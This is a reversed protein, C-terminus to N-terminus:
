AGRQEGGGRPGKGQEGTGASFYQAATTAWCRLGTGVLRRRRLSLLLTGGRRALPPGRLERALVADGAHELPFPDEGCPPPPSAPASPSTPSSTSSSLLLACDSTTLGDSGSPPRSLIGSSPPHITPLLPHHCEPQRCISTHDTHKKNNIATTGTCTPSIKSTYLIRTKKTSTTSRRPIIGHDSTQLSRGMEKGGTCVGEM